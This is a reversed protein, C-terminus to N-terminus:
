AAAGEYRNDLDDQLQVVVRLFPNGTTQWATPGQRWEPHVNYGEATFPMCIDGPARYGAIKPWASAVGLAGRVGDVFMVSPAAHPYQAWAIRAVYRDTPTARPSLQVWRVGDDDEPDLPGHFTGLHEAVFQQVAPTDDALGLISEADLSM